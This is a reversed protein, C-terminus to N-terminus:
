AIPQSPPLGAEPPGVAVPIESSLATAGAAGRRATAAWYIGGGVLFPVLWSFDAGWAVRALPSEYVAAHVTLIGAIMGAIQATVGTVNWGDRGWYPSAPSLTHMGVPDYRWHRLLADVLMIGLFPGAWVNVFSLYDSVVSSLHQNFFEIYLVLAATVVCDVITARWRVLPVGMAQMTLGSSYFTIIQNAIGGCAVTIMFLVYLWVPLMSKLAGAPDGTVSPAHTYILVGLGECLVTVLGVGAFTWGVIPGIRTTSPLYRAYDGAVCAYSVPAGVIVALGTLMAGFLLSGHATQHFGWNVKPIVWIAVVIIVATMAVALVKQALFMLRHGYIAIIAPAAIGFAIFLLTGGDGPNRWGLQIALAKVALIIFLENLVESGILVFWSFVGNFRNGRIGFAARTYTMTPMGSRPGAAQVYAIVAFASTGIVAVLLAEWLSLGLATVGAGVVIGTAGVNSGWWFPFLQRPRLYRGEEDIYDFGHQEVQLASSTDAEVVNAETL